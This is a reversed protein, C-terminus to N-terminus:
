KKIQKPVKKKRGQTIGKPLAKKKAGSNKVKSHASRRGSNNEMFNKRVVYNVPNKIANCINDPNCVGIGQYFEKCNAPMIPKKRYAWSLQSQIYGKKLGPNNKENWEYIKKEMEDNEMGISRFLNILVFLARKKGDKIGKLILKVCPPFNDESINDLKIPKYDKFKGKTKEESDGQRIQNAKNWDLARMVLEKAEDEEADPMFNKVDVNMPSAKKPEFSELESEHIVMSALATKEHLSYPTRFLHRPSVLIIDLGMLEFLDIQVTQSFNEPNKKSNIRCKQCESIQEKNKIELERGCEPCLFKKETISVQKQEGRRCFNCYFEAQDYTNAIENCKLCQIGKKIEVGKFQKYFDEPLSEKMQKQSESRIYAVIKRPLDPFLNKTEINGVQKPFAKWPVIIHFGKSGSFKLGMNKVNNQKLTEMIARAALKSYDFWKCDIDIVLDWGSRIENLQPAEMGTEIKLPDDWIEESCHFSTAGKKVLELIDGPYQFSDPRKGFGEFYRPSIERNKCFEYIIKQVEPRSYYLQTINRIRNEKISSTNSDM